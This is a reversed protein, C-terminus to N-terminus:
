IRKVFLWLLGITIELAGRYLDETMEKQLGLLMNGIFYLIDM